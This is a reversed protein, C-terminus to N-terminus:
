KLRQLVLLVQETGNHWDHETSAITFHVPGAEISYWPKDVGLTPMQFYKYYPIGCEGGSDFGGYYSGSDPHDRCSSCLHKENKLPLDSNRM